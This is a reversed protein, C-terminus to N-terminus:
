TSVKEDREEDLGGGREREKEREKERGSFRSPFTGSSGERQRRLTQCLLWGCFLFLSFVFGSGDCGVQLSM